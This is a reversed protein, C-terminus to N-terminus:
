WKAIASYERTKRRFNNYRMRKLFALAKKLKKSITFHFTLNWESPTSSSYVREGKEM